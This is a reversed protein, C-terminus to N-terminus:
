ATAKRGKLLEAAMRRVAASPDTMLGALLGRAEDRPLTGFLARAAAERLPAANSRIATRLAPALARLDGKRREQALHVACAAVWTGSEGAALAAILEQVPRADPPVMDARRKGEDLAALVLYKWPEPLANDLVEIANGRAAASESRLNESVVDLRVQPLLVELLLLAQLVRQDREELLALGLLEASTRPRRGPLLAPVEIRRLAALALRAGGLEAQIAAEVRRVDVSAGQRRRTVRSLSRAAAKRVPAAGSSLALVLAEIAEKTGLRQLVLAVGRRCSADAAEDVLVERLRPEIEPGFSALASAAELATRRDKFQEVLPPILELNRLKGAAAIARRRVMPDRDRLFAVLPRYFGRVGIKGLADAAAARDRPDEAGLLAKLPDAAALVGDLGAHRILAVAAAARVAAVNSEDLFPHATAIGQEQELACVAGVAAARVEPVADALLARMETHADEVRREGLQEIAAARVRADEHRLLQRLEPSFDVSPVHQLLDIAHLVGAGDGKLAARLARITGESTAALPAASLDLRRRELSEVLSRVYEKRARVLLVIWLAVLILVAITLPRGKGGSEKYFLLM